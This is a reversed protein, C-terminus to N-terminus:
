ATNKVSMMNYSPHPTVAGMDNITMKMIHYPCDKKPGSHEIGIIPPYHWYIFIERKGEGNTGITKSAEVGM